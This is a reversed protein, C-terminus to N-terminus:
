SGDYRNPLLVPRREKQDAGGTRPDAEGQRTRIGSYPDAEYVQTRIRPPDAKYLHTRIGPHPDAEYAQARVRPPPQKM